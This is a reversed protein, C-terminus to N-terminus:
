GIFFQIPIEQRKLGRAFHINSVTAIMYILIRGLELRRELAPRVEVATPSAKVDLPPLQPFRAGVQAPHQLLASSQIATSEHPPERLSSNPIGFYVRPSVHCSLHRTALARVDQEAVDDARYRILLQQM